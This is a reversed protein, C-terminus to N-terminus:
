VQTPQKDPLCRGVRSDRQGPVMKLNPSGLALAEPIHGAPTQHYHASTGTTGCVALSRATRSDKIGPRCCDHGLWLIIRSFLYVPVCGFTVRRFVLIPEAVGLSCLCLKLAETSCTSLWQLSLLVVLSTACCYIHSALCCYWCLHRGSLCHLPHPLCQSHGRCVELGVEM